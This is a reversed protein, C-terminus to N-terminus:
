SNSAPILAQLSKDHWVPIELYCSEDSASRARRIAVDASQGEPCARFEHMVGVFGLLLELSIEVLM